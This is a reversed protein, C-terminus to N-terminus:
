SLVEAPQAVLTAPSELAHHSLPTGSASLHALQHPLVPVVRSSRWTGRRTIMAQYVLARPGSVLLASAGKREAELMRQEAREREVPSITARDPLPDAGVDVAAYGLAEIMQVAETSGDCAVPAAVPPRPLKGAGALLLQDLTKAEVGLKTLAEAGGACLTVVLSAGEFLPAHHTAPHGLGGVVIGPDPLGLAALTALASRLVEPLSLPDLLPDALVSIYPLAGPLFAVGGPIAAPLGHEALWRSGDPKLEPRSSLWALLELDTDLGEVPRPEASPPGAIAPAGLGEITRAFEAVARQPGEPGPDPLQFAVREGGYGVMSLAESVRKVRLAAPDEAGNLRCTEQHRGLVLVGKAGHVVADLLLSSSVRGTCPVSLLQAGGALTKSELDNRPCAMVAIPAERFREALRAAEFKEQDIAGSPCAGVCAGCGRCHETPITAVRLGGASMVVRAVAFPCAEECSGCGLCKTRDVVCVDTDFTRGWIEYGTATRSAVIHDTPCIMACAGCGVCDVPPEDAFSGIAKGTGRGITTIASTVYTECVRTCLGCLICYDAEADVHMGETSVDYKRALEAITESRPCRAALLSLVRRRAELVKPSSTRVQIGEAAPYLCATMLGTWGGWDPHTVEVQCLRCAGSPELAPDDCLTPIEIGAERALELVYTGEAARLERGDISLTVLKETKAQEIM